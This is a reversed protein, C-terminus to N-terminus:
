STCTTSHGLCTMGRPELTCVQTECGKSICTWCEWSSSSASGQWLGLAQSFSKNVRQPFKMGPSVWLHSRSAASCSKKHCSYIRWLDRISFEDHRVCLHAWAGLIEIHIQSKKRGKFNGSCGRIRHPLHSAPPGPPIQGWTHGQNWWASIPLSPLFAWSLCLKHERGDKPFFFLVSFHIM